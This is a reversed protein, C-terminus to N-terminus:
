IPFGSTVEPIAWDAGAESLQEVSYSGTAVVVVKTFLKRVNAVGVAPIGRVWVHTPPEDIM